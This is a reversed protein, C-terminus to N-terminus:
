AAAKAKVADDLDLERAGWAGLTAGAYKRVPLGGFDVTPPAYTQALDSAFVASVGIIACPLFKKKGGAIKDAGWAGVAGGGYKRVPLGGFDMEPPAYQVALESAAVAGAGMVVNDIWEKKM